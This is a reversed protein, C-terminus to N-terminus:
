PILTKLVSSSLTYARVFSDDVHAYLIGEEKSIQIFQSAFTINNAESDVILPKKSIWNVKGKEYDYIFLGASFVGYMIRGKVRRNAERGNLIGVVKNKGPNIFEKPLIPGPSVHGGCWPFKVEKPHIVTDGIEWGSGLNSVIAVRLTSFWTKSFQDKSEFLSLRIGNKNVPALSLEKAIIKMKPKPPLVPITMELNDLDEGQAHGLYIRYDGKQKDVFPITFYLHILDTEPDIIIDPDELGLFELYDFSLSKIVKETNKIELPDDVGYEEFLKIKKVKYLKSKDVFGKIHVEGKRDTICRIVGDNYDTKPNLSLAMMHNFRKDEVVKGEHQIVAKKMEYNYCVM